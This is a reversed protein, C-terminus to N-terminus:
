ALPITEHEMRFELSRILRDLEAETSVALARRKEKLRARELRDENRLKRL